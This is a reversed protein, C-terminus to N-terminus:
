PLREQPADDLSIRSLREDVERRRAFTTRIAISAFVVFFLLMAIVGLSTLRM